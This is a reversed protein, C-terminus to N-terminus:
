FCTGVMDCGFRAQRAYMRSGFNVQRTYAERQRLCRSEKGCASGRRAAFLSERQRLCISAENRAFLPQHALRRHCESASMCARECAHVRISLAWTCPLLSACPSLPAARSPPLELPPCSNGAPPAGCTEGSPFQWLYATHRCTSTKQRTDQCACDLHMLHLLHELLSIRSALRGVDKVCWAVCLMCCVRKRQRTPCNPM